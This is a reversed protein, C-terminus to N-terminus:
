ITFFFSKLIFSTLSTSFCINEYMELSKCNAKYIGILEAVRSLDNEKILRIYYQSLDEM